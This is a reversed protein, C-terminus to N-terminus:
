LNPPTANIHWSAQPELRAFDIGFEYTSTAGYNQKVKQDRFDFLGLFSMLDM